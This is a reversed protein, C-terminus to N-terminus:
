FSYRQIRRQIVFLYTMVGILIIIFMLTAV